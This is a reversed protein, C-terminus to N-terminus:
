QRRELFRISSVNRQVRPLRELDLREQLTNVALIVLDRFSM